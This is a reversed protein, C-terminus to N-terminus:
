IRSYSCMKVTSFMTSSNVYIYYQFLPTYKWSDM